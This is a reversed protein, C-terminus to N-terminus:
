LQTKESRIAESTETLPRAHPVRSGVVQAVIDRAIAQATMGVREMIQVRSAHELFEDPLGVENLATDVQAARMDQRVRTGIGGVKIGDEITVVLRHESAMEIVSKAVPVVWRPDVVTSGIGQAALLEAVQLGVSAMAGVTVILVDKSASQLLVDVGDITRKVAKIGSGVTGKSFRLVTPADSVAVAENLEERLTDADRPAAIRIGPIVQLVSLDWMGHHSAGDPGTVGARDLVFTVGAKHLAVDMLVQDFARNMFTAYVAVVPHLGGFAM